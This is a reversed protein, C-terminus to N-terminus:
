QLEFIQKKENLPAEFVQRYDGAPAEFINPKSNEPAEFIAAYNGHSQGYVLTQSKEASHFSTNVQSGNGLLRSNNAPNPELTRKRFCLYLGGLLILTFVTAAGIGLGIKAGLSLGSDKSSGRSETSATRTSLVPHTKTATPSSVSTGTADATGGLTARKTTSTSSSTTTTSFNETINFYHSAFLEDQDSLNSANRIQFFFINGNSLNRNTSVIWDYSTIDSIDATITLIMLRSLEILVPTLYGGYKPGM